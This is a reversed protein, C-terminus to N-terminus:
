PRRGVGAGADRREDEGALENLRRVVEDAVGQADADVRGPVLAGAVASQELIHSPYHTPFAQLIRRVVRAEDVVRAM